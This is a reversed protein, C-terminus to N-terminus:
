KVIALKKTEKYFGSKLQYNYLGAPLGQLDVDVKHEGPEYIGDVMLKVQKGQNNILNVSVQYAGNLMFNVTTKDKAPNPYCDKLAFRNGIFGENGTITQQALPLQQFVV